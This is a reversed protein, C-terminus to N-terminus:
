VAQLDAAYRPVPSFTFRMLMDSLRPNLVDVTSMPLTQCYEQRSGWRKNM